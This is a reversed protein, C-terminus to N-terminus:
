RKVQADTTAVLRMMEEENANGQRLRNLLTSLEAKDIPRYRALEEVFAADDLRPNIGYPRALRRKFSNYYHQLIYHRQGARQFLDAMNEVYEASSRRAIEERLPIPRGFRRGTLTFYGALVLLAYILGWGWANSFVISRLSPPEFFGHHYEDFLVVAAPPVRRLLNLVLAANQEDALGANTFPYSASSLYIYGQGYKLGALVVQDDVGVLPVIDNRSFALVRNTRVLVSQVPPQALVPQLVGARELAPGLVSESEGSYTQIEIDLENLLAASGGFLQPSDDAMILTGGAEVWRLVEAAQTRNFAVSPNLIVLAAARDDIEFETYELRQGDYGLSDVWRLLAMAGGPASSRTSPVSSTEDESNRGPGLITFVVLAVFLALLILLDRRQRM